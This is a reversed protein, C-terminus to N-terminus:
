LPVVHEQVVQGKLVHEELIRRAVEPTVKGYTVKPQDGVTVQVIPERECLGICGTQTVIIGELNKEAITELIAKMTDRAGAAIGCTGMAVTIQVQGSTTKAKRKALAEERIRKLDDLSKITPM